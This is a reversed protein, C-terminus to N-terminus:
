IETIKDSRNRYYTFLDEGWQIANSDFCFIHQNQDYTGNSFPLTLSLFRDTVVHTFEIKESCVYFGTDEFTSFERLNVVFEQKIREYVPLTVLISVKIGRELLPRFSSTFLPNFISCIGNIKKSKTLNELWDKHPEFLHISDPPESFTCNSLEGIRELFPAPICEIAHNECYDYRNGFVKLLDVMSQMRGAVAIGLSSLSYINGNKIVLCNERLRKLQPLIAVAGVDLHIKIEEITKPGERLFLLLNKRKESLFILELLQTNM